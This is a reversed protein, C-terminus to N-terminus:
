IIEFSRSVIFIPLILMKVLLHLLFVKSIVIQLLLANRKLDYQGSVNSCAKGSQLYISKLTLMPPRYCGMYLFLHLICKSVYAFFICDIPVLFRRHFERLVKLFTLRILLSLNQSSYWVANRSYLYLSFIALSLM